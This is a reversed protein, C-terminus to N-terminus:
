VYFPSTFWFVPQDVKMAVATSQSFLSSIDGRHTIQSNYMSLLRSGFFGTSGGENCCSYISSLIYSM